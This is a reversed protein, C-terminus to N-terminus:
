KTLEKMTKEAIWIRTTFNKYQGERESMLRVGVRRGRSLIYQSVPNSVVFSCGIETKLLFADWPNPKQKTWARKDRLRRNPMPVDSDVQTPLAPIKFPVIGTRKRNGQDDRFSFRDDGSNGQSSQASYSTKLREMQLQKMLAAVAVRFKVRMQLKDGCTLCLDESHALFDTASSCISVDKSERKRRVNTIRRQHQTNM